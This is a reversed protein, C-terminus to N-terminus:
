RCSSPKTRSQLACPPCLRTLSSLCPRPGLRPPPGARRRAASYRWCLPAVIKRIQRPRPTEKPYFPRVFPRLRSSRANRTVSRRTHSPKCSVQAIDRLTDLLSETHTTMLQVDAEDNVSQERLVILCMPFPGKSHFTAKCGCIQSIKKKFKSFIVKLKRTLLAIERDREEVQGKLRESERLLDSLRFPSM